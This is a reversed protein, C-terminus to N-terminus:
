QNFVLDNMITALQVLSSHKHIDLHDPHIISTEDDTSLYNYKYVCTELSNYLFFDAISLPSYINFKNNTGDYEALKLLKNLGKRSIVYAATSYIDKKWKSYLNDLKEHYIKQLQLIDFDPANAIISKLDHDFYKLNRLSIDDELVLFYEGSMKKLYSYAKIHSLAVAKEYNTMSRELYNFPSMDENAGDIAKIRTNPVNIKELIKEMKARRDLSRDLNIWVIHDLGNIKDAQENRVIEYSQNTLLSQNYKEGNIFKNIRMKLNDILLGYTQIATPNFIPQSYFEHLKTPNTMLELIKYYVQNISTESSPDFLLVRNMNFISKDISDLDGWYIPITGAICAMFLKETVYGPNKTMFNEPCISFLYEKQFNTRGKKEFLENSFNNFLNGPCDIHDILKLKNYIDTRTKGMDYRNILCCFKKNIIEELKAQGVYNNAEVMKDVSLGWDMYHPYKVHTGSEKVCGVTLNILNKSYIKYMARDNFEVPETINYIVKDYYKSLAFVDNPNHLFSGCIIVDYKSLLEDSIKDAKEIQYNQGKLANLYIRDEEIKHEPYFGVYLIKTSNNYPIEFTSMFKKMINEPKFDRYANWDSKSKIISRINKLINIIADYSDYYIGKNGLIEIHSNDIPSVCTIIPKNLYSFEGVALGFTEGDLRAHIMADCSNIFKVKEEIDIIKDLYIIRPHEYFKITNAFLFYINPDLNLIDRIAQHVQVINFQEMGGYRGLVISDVPINLKNKLNGEVKPMNIMHPIFDVKNGHKKTLYESVTVYKDGHPQVTFVAHLLNKCKTSLKSSSFEGSIISYLYQIGEKEIVNNVEDFNEYAYCKFHKEFKKIVSPQNGSNHKQYFIISENNYFEQNYYAYDYMAIETGRECLQNSHFGIKIKKILKKENNQNIEKTIDKWYM